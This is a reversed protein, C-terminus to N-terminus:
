ERSTKRRWRRLLSEIGWCVLIGVVWAAALPALFLNVNLFGDIAKRALTCPYLAAENLIPACMGEHPVWLTPLIFLAALGGCLLVPPGALTIWKRKRVTWARKRAWASVGSDWIFAAALIGLSVPLLAKIWAMADTM